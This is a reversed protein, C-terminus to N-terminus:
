GLLGAPQRPQRHTRHSVHTPLHRGSSELVCLEQEVVEPRVIVDSTM